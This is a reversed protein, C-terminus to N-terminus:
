SRQELGAAVFAVLAESVAPSNVNRAIEAPMFRSWQPMRMTHSIAGLAFQLRWFVAEQTLGPLAQQLTEYLLNLVPEIQRVFSRSVVEDPAALAQGVLAVFDATGGSDRFQLSPEIFARLAAAVDPPSQRQRAETRVAELRQRRIENLPLLRRSFVATLLGEKGGFHYNVAALNVGAAKTITRLSTSHYGRVAFLHEATDLLKQKTDARSVQCPSPKPASNKMRVILVSTQCM